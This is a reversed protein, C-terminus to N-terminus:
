KAEYYNVEMMCKYDFDITFNITIPEKGTLDSLYITNNHYYDVTANATPISINYVDINYQGNEGIGIFEFKAKKKKKDLQFTLSYEGKKENKCLLWKKLDRYKLKKDKQPPYENKNPKPNPGKPKFDDDTEVEPGTNNKNFLRIRKRKNEKEKTAKHRVTGEILNTTLSGGKNELDSFFEEMGYASISESNTQGFHHNVQAKLYDRLEKYADKYFNKQVKCREPKWADHSPVEMNKFIRNMENGEILLIGTFSISGSIRDQLFLSMGQKRTMLIRKNLDEGRKLLLTAEGDKIGFKDGYDESKLIIKKVNPDDTTPNANLLDYYVKLAYDDKDDTLSSIYHGLNENNIEIDKYKVVLLKKHITIFFNKLTAQIITQKLDDGDDYGMIFIDTGNETRQFNGLHFPELIAKFNSDSYYGTGMTLDNEQDFSILRAVGIYSEINDVKSGYFVTRLNSCSFPASKGIGFSGGSDMNKNSQGKSKILAHWSKNRDDDEAGDLGTTNFDSIRLVHIKKKMISKSQTFFRKVDENDNASAICKELIDCFQNCGPFEQPEIYFDDFEVIVPKSESVRQDVSNQIVERINAEQAKGSFTEIGADNLGDDGANNYSAFSWKKNIM